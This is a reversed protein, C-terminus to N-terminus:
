IPKSVVHWDSGWPFNASAWTFTAQDWTLSQTTPKSINTWQSQNVGDYFTTTSDYTIDVQNYQEKGVPNVNSYTQSNPKPINTWAM